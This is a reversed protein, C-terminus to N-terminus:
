RNDEEKEFSVEEWFRVFLNIRGWEEDGDRDRYEEVFFGLFAFM